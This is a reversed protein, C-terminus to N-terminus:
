HKKLRKVIQDVDKIPLDSRATRVRKESYGLLRELVVTLNQREDALRKMAKALPAADYPDEQSRGNMIPARHRGAATDAAESLIALEEYSIERATLNGGARDRRGIMEELYEKAFRLAALDRTQGLTKQPIRAPKSRLRRLEAMCKTLREIYGPREPVDLDDQARKESFLAIAETVGEMAKKCRSKHFAVYAESIALPSRPGRDDVYFWMLEGCHEEVGKERLFKAFVPDRRELEQIFRKKFDSKQLNFAPVPPSLKRAKKFRRKFASVEKPSLKKRPM